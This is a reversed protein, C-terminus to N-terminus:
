HTPDSRVLVLKAKGGSIKAKQRWSLKKAKVNKQM